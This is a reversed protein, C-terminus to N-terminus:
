GQHGIFYRRIAQEDAQIQAVLTAADIFPLDGRVYHMLSIELTQGYLDGEFDLIHVELAYGAGSFAPRGGYYVMSPSSHDGWHAHAAYVGPAPMQKYASDIRVNATPYGLSRGVQRDPVVDGRLSYAYGLMENAESLLGDALARRIRTSSVAQVGSGNMLADQQAVRFPPHTDSYTQLMELNGRRMRGFRHDHGVVMGVVGLREVLWEQLFNEAECEAVNRDFSLFFLRDLGADELRRIKEGDTSLLRLNAADKGLILRPHPTFTLVATAAKMEKAMEAMRSLLARHGRHVGDFTGLTLFLPVDKQYSKIDNYVLM